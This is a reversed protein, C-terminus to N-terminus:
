AEILAPYFNAVATGSTCILVAPRGTAKAFGLARFASGREDFHVTSHVDDREAVAIALPTSRSGPSLCFESVGNRILEEVILRGWLHNLNCAKM